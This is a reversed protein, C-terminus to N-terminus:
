DKIGTLNDDRSIRNEPYDNWMGNIDVTWNDENSKHIIQGPTQNDILVWEGNSFKENQWGSPYATEDYTEYPM